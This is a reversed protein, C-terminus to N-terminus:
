QTDLQFQYFKDSFLKQENIGGFIVLHTGINTLSFSHLSPPANEESKFSQKYLTM